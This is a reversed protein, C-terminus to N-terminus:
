YLGKEKLAEIMIQSAKVTYENRADYRNDEHAEAWNEMCKLMSLFMEQQLFRHSSTVGNAFEQKKSSNVNVFDSFEEAMQLGKSYDM